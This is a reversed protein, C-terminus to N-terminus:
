PLFEEPVWFFTGWSFKMKYDDDEDIKSLKQYKKTMYAQLKRIESDPLAGKNTFDSVRFNLAESKTSFGKVLELVGAVSIKGKEVKEKAKSEGLYTALLQLYANKLNERVTTSNSNLDQLNRISQVLFQLEDKSVFLVRKYVDIGKSTLSTYGPFFYQFKKGSYKSILEKQKEPVDAKIASFYRLMEANLPPVGKEGVGNFNKTLNDEADQTTKEKIKILSDIKSSLDDKPISNGPKCYSILGMTAAQDPYNLIYTNDGYPIFLNNPDFSITKMKKLGSNSTNYNDISQKGSLKTISVLSRTFNNYSFNLISPL